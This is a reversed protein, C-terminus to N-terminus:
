MADLASAMYLWGNYVGGDTGGHDTLDDGGLVVPGGTLLPSSGTARVSPLATTGALGVGLLLVFGLLVARM